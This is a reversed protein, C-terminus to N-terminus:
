YSGLITLVRFNMNWSDGMFLKWSNSSGMSGGTSDGDDSRPWGRMIEILLSRDLQELAPQQGSIRDVGAHWM